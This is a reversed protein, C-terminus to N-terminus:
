IQTSKLSSTRITTSSGMATFIMKAKLCFLLRITIHPSKFPPISQYSLYCQKSDKRELPSHISIQKLIDDSTKYDVIFANDISLDFSSEDCSLLSSLSVGKIFIEPTTITEKPSPLNSLFCVFNNGADIQELINPKIMIVKQETSDDENKNKM